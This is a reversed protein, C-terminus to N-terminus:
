ENVGQLDAAETGLRGTVANQQQQQQQRYQGMYLELDQAFTPDTQLRQQVNPKQLYVNEIYQMAIDGGQPQAGVSQGSWILALDNSVKKLIDGEAEENSRLVRNAFQPVSLNVIVDMIANRDLRNGMDQRMLEMLRTVVEATHESDMARVDYYIKIDMEEDMPGKVIMQPEPNGTVRFFISEDSHYRLYAKYALRACESVHKLARNIFYQQRQLAIPSNPTLGLIFDAEEDLYREMEVGNRQTNPVEQTKYINEEGRRAAYTAGAGWVTPPRGAPHTRPPNLAISQQDNFSDRVIKAQRQNGRLMTPISRVDYIRKTDRTLPTISIPFEDWGNLLEHKLETEVYRPCWVTEYIGSAGDAKDFKREFTRVIEVLDSPQNTTIGSRLSGGFGRGGYIGYPTDIDEDTVGMCNEILHEVTDKDWEEGEIASLLDQASMFYRIHLRTLNQTHMSYSPMILEANTDKGELIPRDIDGRVVPIETIGQERLERVARRAVSKKIDYQMVFFDTAMDEQEEDMILALLSEAEESEQALQEISSLELIEKSKRLKKEWGVYTAAIGKEFLNNLSLEIEDYANPIWSDIMWRLFVATQSAKELNQHGVPIATIQGDRIANMAIAVLSDIRPGVVPVEQDSCGQWPQAGPYDKRQTDSKNPWLCRRQNYSDVCQWNWGTNNQRDEEFQQHLVAMDPRRSVYTLSDLKSNEM